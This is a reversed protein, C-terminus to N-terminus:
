KQACEERGLGRIGQRQPAMLARSLKRSGILFRCSDTPTRNKPNRLDAVRLGRSPERSEAPLSVAGDILRNWMEHRRPIADLDTDDAGRLHERVHNLTLRIPWERRRNWSLSPTLFAPSIAPSGLLESFVM